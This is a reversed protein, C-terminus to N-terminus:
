SAGGLGREATRGERLRVNNWGACILTIKTSDKGLLNDGFIKWSGPSGQRRLEIWGEGHKDRFETAIKDGLNRDLDM